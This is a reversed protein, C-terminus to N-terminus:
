GSKEEPQVTFPVTVIVQTKNEQRHFSLGYHESFALQIRRHVNLLGIGNGKPHVEGSELKQLIDEDMGGGNDEIVFVADNDRRAGSVRIFCPEAMEELACTIANEVLPQLTMQPIRVAYLSEPINLRFDIRRGYRVKQIHIYSELLKIEQQVPILKESFQMSGRLLASLDATLEATETDQHQYATWCIMSLTNFIFHPQIQAQLQKYQADKYLLMRNYNEDELRKRQYTMEYFQHCLYNIENKSGAFESADEPKPMVGNGYAKIQVVLRNLRLLTHRLFARCLLIVCVTLVSMLFIAMASADRISQSIQGYPTYVLYIWGNEATHQTILYDDEIRWGDSSAPQVVEDNSYVCSHDVFVSVMLNFGSKQYERSNERLMGPIDLEGIIVGLNELTSLQRVQRILFGHGHLVTIYMAGKNEIGSDFLTQLDDMTLALSSSGIMRLDDACIGISLFDSTLYNKLQTSISRRTETWERSMPDATRYAALNKQIINDGIMSLTTINLEELRNDIQEAYTVLSQANKESIIENYTNSVYHLMVFSGAALTIIAAIVVCLIQLSLHQDRLKKRIQGIAATIRIVTHQFKSKM